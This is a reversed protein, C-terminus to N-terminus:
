TRVCERDIAAACDHRNRWTGHALRARLEALRDRRADRRRRARESEWRVRQEWQPGTRRSSEILIAVLNPNLM